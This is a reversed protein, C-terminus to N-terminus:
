NLLSNWPVLKAVEMGAITALRWDFSQGGGWHFDSLYLRPLWAHMSRSIFESWLGIVLYSRVQNIPWRAWTATRGAPRWQRHAEQKFKDWCLVFKITDRVNKTETCFSNLSYVNRMKKKRMIMKVRNTQRLTGSVLFRVKSSIADWNWGPPSMSTSSITASSSTNPVSDCAASTVLTALSTLGVETGIVWIGFDAVFFASSFSSKHTTCRYTCVTKGFM